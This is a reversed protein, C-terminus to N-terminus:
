CNLTPKVAKSSGASNIRSFIRERLSQKSREPHCTADEARRTQSRGCREDVVSVFECRVQRLANCQHFSRLRRGCRGPPLLLLISNPVDPLRNQQVRRRGERLIAPVTPLIARTNSDFSGDNRISHTGHRRVDHSKPQQQQQQQKEESGRGKHHSKGKQTQKSHCCRSDTNRCRNSEEAGPSVAEEIPRLDKWSVFSAFRQSSLRLVINRM